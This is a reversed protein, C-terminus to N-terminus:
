MATMGGDNANGPMWPYFDFADSYGIDLSRDWILTKAYFTPIVSMSLCDRLTTATSMNLREHPIDSRVLLILPRLAMGFADTFREMFQAFDTNEGLAEQVRPDHCPAFIFDGAEIPEHMSVNPLVLAPLWDSM